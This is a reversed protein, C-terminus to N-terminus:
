APWFLGMPAFGFTPVRLLAFFAGVGFAAVGLATLRLDIRFDEGFDEGFDTLRL